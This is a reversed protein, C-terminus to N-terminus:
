RHKPMRITHVGHQGALAAIPRLKHPGVDVSREVNMSKRLSAPIRGLAVVRGFWGQERISHLHLLEGASMSNFDVILLQPRPAPEEILERVVHKISSAYSLALNTGALESRIWTEHDPAFVLARLRRDTIPGDSGRARLRPHAAM